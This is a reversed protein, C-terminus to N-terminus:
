SPLCRRCCSCSTPRTSSRRLSPARSPSASRWCCTSGRTRSTASRTGSPGTACVNRDCGSVNTHVPGFISSTDVRRYCTTPAHFSHMPLAAVKAPERAPRCDRPNLHPSAPVSLSIGSCCQCYRRRRPTSPNQSVCWVISDIVLKLQTPSMTFLTAFCHKTIAHLLNFFQLRHEPYDQPHQATESTLSSNLVAAAIPAPNTASSTAWLPLQSCHVRMAQM